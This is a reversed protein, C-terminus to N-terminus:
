SKTNKIVEESKISLITLINKLSKFLANVTYHTDVDTYVYGELKNEMKKLTEIIPIHKFASFIEIKYKHINIEKENSSNTSVTARKIDFISLFSYCLNMFKIFVNKIEDSELSNEISKTIEILHKNRATYFLILIDRISYEYQNECYDVFKEINSDTQKIPEIGTEMNNKYEEIKKKCGIIDEEIDILLDAFYILNSEMTSTGHTPEAEKEYWPRLNIKKTSKELEDYPRFGLEDQDSVVSIYRVDKNGYFNRIINENTIYDACYILYFTLIM